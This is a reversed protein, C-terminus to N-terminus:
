GRTIELVKDIGNEGGGTYVIKVSDGPTLSDPMQTAPDLQWVTKDDLVLTRTKPNFTLVKGATTDAFVPSAAALFMAAVLLRM